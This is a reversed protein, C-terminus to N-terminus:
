MHQVAAVLACALLIAATLYTLTSIKALMHGRLSEHHLRSEESTGGPRLPRPQTARIKQQGASVSTVSTVRLRVDCM